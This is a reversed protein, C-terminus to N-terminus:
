NLCLSANINKKKTLPYAWIDIVGKLANLLTEVANSRERLIFIGDSARIRGSPSLFLNKTDKYTHYRMLIECVNVKGKVNVHEWSELVINVAGFIEGLNLTWRIDDGKHQPLECAAGVNYDNVFDFITTQVTSLFTNYENRNM